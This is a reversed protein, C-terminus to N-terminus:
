TCSLSLTSVHSLLLMTALPCCCVDLSMEYRIHTLAEETSDESTYILSALRCVLSKRINLTHVETPDQVLFRMENAVSSMLMLHSRFITQLKSLQMFM